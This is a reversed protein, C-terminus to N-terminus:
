HLDTREVGDNMINTMSLYPFDNISAFMMVYRYATFFQSAFAMNAAAQTIQLTSPSISNAIKYL